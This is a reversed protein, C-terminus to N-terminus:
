DTEEDENDNDDEDNDEDEEDDLALFPTLVEAIRTHGNANPHVGDDVGADELSVLLDSLAGEDDLYSYFSAQLDALAVNMEEALECVAESYYALWANIGNPNAYYEQPHRAYYYQDADGEIVPHITCLIVKSGQDQLMQTMEQLHQRYATREVLPENVAKCVTDNLGFYMIVVDPQEALVDKEFRHRAQATTNGPVGKNVFQYAPFREALVALFKQNSEVLAGHTVSDGFGVVKM